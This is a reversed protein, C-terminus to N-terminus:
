NGEYAGREVFLLDPPVPMGRRSQELIDAIAPFGRERAFRAGHWLPEARTPRLSKAHMYADLVRSFEVPDTPHPTLRELCKARELAASFVEEAWGGMEERQAYARAACEYDGADRLSQAYYYQARADTKNYHLHEHLVEADKRYKQTDASRAGDPHPVVCCHPLKGWQLARGPCVLVEHVPCEYRWPLNRRFVSARPYVLGGYHLDIHYVDADLPGLGQGPPAYLVEDADLTLLYESKVWGERAFRVLETRNHAFHKWPRKFWRLPRGELADRAVRELRAPDDSGTDIILAGSVCELTSKICRPLVAEENRVIMILTPLERV